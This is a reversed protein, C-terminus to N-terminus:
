FEVKKRLGFELGVPGMLGSPMLPDESGFSQFARLKRKGKEYVVNTNTRRKEKPLGADGVLRNLWTNAVQIELENEGPKVAGTLDATWPHTWVTGLDKGNVRVKAIYCVKGLSLKVLGAAEKDTLNFKKRYVATGSFYKIEPDENEDWPTLEDFQVPEAPGWGEAFTVNWPGKLQRSNPVGNVTVDTQKGKQNRFVYGGDGWFKVPVTDGLRGEMQIRKPGTVFVLNNGKAPERFVFFLSGNTPMPLHLM